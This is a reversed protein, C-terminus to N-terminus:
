NLENSVEQDPQRRMRSDPKRSRARDATSRDSQQAARRRAAAQRAASHGAARRQAGPGASHRLRWCSRWIPRCPISTDCHIHAVQLGEALAEKCPRIVRHRLDLGLRGRRLGGAARDIIQIPIFDRRKGGQRRLDTMAQHNDADYSINGTATKRSAASGTCSAPDGPAGLAPCPHRTASSCAQGPRRGAQPTSPPSLRRLGSDAVAGLRQRHLRRDASHGADHAAARHPGSRHRRRFLRGALPAGGGADPHRRQPRLRGPLSRSARDQHAHRHVPRRAPSNVIVLPLETAVALGMAETKLAIGPGLQLHRGAQRRLLRRHRLLRRRNRRRGSVDRRRSKWGALQHLLSSAPTIPYSCFM